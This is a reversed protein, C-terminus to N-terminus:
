EIEAEVSTPHQSEHLQLASNQYSRSETRFVTQQISHRPTNRDTRSIAPKNPPVDMPRMENRSDARETGWNMSKAMRLDEVITM